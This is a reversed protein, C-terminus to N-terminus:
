VGRTGRTRDGKDQRRQTTANLCPTSQMCSDPARESLSTNGTLSTVPPKGLQTPPLLTPSRAFRSVLPLGLAFWPGLVWCTWNLVLCAGRTKSVDSRRRAIM